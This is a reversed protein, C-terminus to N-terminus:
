SYHHYNGGLRLILSSETVPHLSDAIERSLDSAFDHKTTCILCVARYTGHQLSSTKADALLIDLDTIVVVEHQKRVAYM